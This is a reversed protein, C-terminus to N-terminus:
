RCSGIKACVKHVFFFYAAARPHDLVEICQRHRGDQLALPRPLFVFGWAESRTKKPVQGYPPSFPIGQFPFDLTFVPTGEAACVWQGCYVSYGGPVM